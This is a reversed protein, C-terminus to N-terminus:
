QRHAGFGATDPPAQRKLVQPTLKTQEAVAIPSRLKIRGWFRGILFFPLGFFLLPYICFIGCLLGIPNDQM